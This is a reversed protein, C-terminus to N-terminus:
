RDCPKGGRELERSIAPYAARKSKKHGYRRLERDIKRWSWGDVTLRYLGVLYGTRDRGHECHVYIPWNERDTLVKMAKAVEDCGDESAIEEASTPVHILEIGLRKCAAAEEELKHTNLKLVTRIGMEKLRALAREDPQGGRFIGNEVVVGFNRVPM